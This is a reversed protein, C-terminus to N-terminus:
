KDCNLIRFKQPRYQNQELFKEPDTETYGSVQKFDFTITINNNVQYCMYIYVKSLRCLIAQPPIQQYKDSLAYFYDSEVPVNTLEGM